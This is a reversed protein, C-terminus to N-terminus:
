RGSVDNTLTSSIGRIIYLLVWYFREVSEVLHKKTDLVLREGVHQTLGDFRSNVLTPGTRYPTKLNLLDCSRMGEKIRGKM